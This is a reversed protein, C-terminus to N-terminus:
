KNAKELFAEIEDLSKSALAQKETTISILYFTGYDIAQPDRRRTKELRYGRREAVRRARNERTREENTAMMYGM